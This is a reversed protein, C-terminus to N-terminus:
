STCSAEHRRKKGVAQTDFTYNADQAIRCFQLLRGCCPGRDAAAESGRPGIRANIEAARRAECLKAEGGSLRSKSFCRNLDEDVFRQCRQVAEENALFTDIELSTFESFCPQRLWSRVLIVGSLENGHTGGVLAVRKIQRRMASRQVRSTALRALRASTPVAGSLQRCVVLSIGALATEFSGLRNSTPARKVPLANAGHLGLLMSQHRIGHSVRSKTSVSFISTNHYAPESSQQLDYVAMFRAGGAEVRIACSITKASLHMVGARACLMRCYASPFLAKSANAESTEPEPQKPGDESM